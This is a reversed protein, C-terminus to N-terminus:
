GQLADAVRELASRTMAPDAGLGIRVHDASGFFRGPVLSTEYRTTLRAFFADGDLELLRPFVTAGEDFVWQELAPHGGLIERYAARNAALIAQARARFHALRDFAVAAMREAVHPAHVGFLDNLRWMRQALAPPALIWGCRLGSLGYAKTLSSTVVVNGDESFATRAVGDAFTLERYVEDVLVMAGVKAAAAAIAAITPDDAGASTPNHLNTVVVLRTGPGIAEAVRGPDLRWADALRREFTRVRAQLYGLGDTLLGYTPTEILVQDGPAVLAALVLHNAFSCGGGPTVVCAPDIGFRAAIREKLPAYGGANAGHLALDDWTLGLDALDAREIGSTALTFRADAGFKAFDMYDSQLVRPPLMASRRASQARRRSPGREGGGKRPLPLPTEAHKKPSGRSSLPPHCSRRRDQLDLVEALRETRKLRHAVEAERDLGALDDAEESWVAGALGRRDVHDEAHERGGGPPDLDVADVESDVAAPRELPGVERGDVRRQRAVERDLLVQADEAHDVDDRVQAFPDLRQEGLEVQGAIALGLGPHERGALLGPQLQRFRHQVARPEQQQVLRRSRDIGRGGPVDAGADRRQDVGAVAAHEPGAVVHVLHFRDAVPHHEERVAFHQELAVRAGEGALVARGAEIIKKHLRARPAAHLAPAPWQPPRAM